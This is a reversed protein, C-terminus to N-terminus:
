MKMGSGLDPFAISNLKLKKNTRNLCNVITNIAYQYCKDENTHPVKDLSPTHFIHRAKLKGGGTVYIQGKEFPRGREKVIKDVENTVAQGAAANILESTRSSTANVIVDVEQTSIDGNYIWICLNNLSRIAFTGDYWFILPLFSNRTPIIEDDSFEFNGTNAKGRQYAQCYNKIQYHAQDLHDSHLSKLILGDEAVSEIIVSTHMQLIDKEFHSLFVCHEEITM